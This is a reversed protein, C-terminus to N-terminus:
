GFGYERLLLAAAVRDSVGLKLLLATMQNQVTKPKVGIARAIEVSSAGRALQRAIERERATLQDFLHGTRGTHEAAGPVRAAVGPGLVMGGRRVLDLAEVLERCSSDKLVYGAAGANLARTVQGDDALMTLVLVPLGPRAARLRRVVDIGDEDGLRLDVTAIDVQETVALHIAEAACCAEHVVAVWPETSLATMLGLRVVPHNDVVLM